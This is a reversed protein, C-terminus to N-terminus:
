SAGYRAERDKAELGLGRVDNLADELDSLYQDAAGEMAYGYEMMHISAPARGRAVSWGRAELGDAVAYIDVEDSGFAFIAAAPNALVKLGPIARIGAKLRDMTRMKRAAAERYGRQGLYHMVAWAAAVAGGPRSGAMTPTRYNGSTWNTADFQFIHHERLAENRWNITSTGRAAYGYKHLDASLSSVGPVRFDFPTVPYGLQEVFPLLFGGLCGDTHFNIDREAAFAAMEPIPDITGFSWNVASGVMLVTNPTVAAKYADLDLLCDGDIPTRTIKLGFYEAGKNFAPHATMPAVIEPETIGRQKRARNRAAMIGLLISETGGSTINGVPAPNNFLRGTMEIVDREFRAVSKFAAAYLGNSQLFRSYAERQVDFVDEEAFYIPARVRPNGRDVDDRAAEAMQAFLAEPDVGEEPLALATPEITTTM